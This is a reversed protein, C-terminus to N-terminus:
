PIDVNNTGRTISQGDSATCTVNVYGMGPPGPLLDTVQVTDLHDFPTCSVTVGAPAEDFNNNAQGFGELYLTWPGTGDLTPKEFLM